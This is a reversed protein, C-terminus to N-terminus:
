YTHRLWIENSEPARNALAVVVVRMFINAFNLFFNFRALMALPTSHM